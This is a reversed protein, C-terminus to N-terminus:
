NKEHILEELTEILSYQHRYNVLSLLRKLDPCRYQSFEQNLHYAQEYTEFEITSSSQAIQIILSALDIIKITELGGINIIEGVSKPSNILATIFGLFDNVHCFTRVQQGNGFVKLPQGKKAAEIFRPVVMGYQGGQRPGIVNFPRLISMKLGYKEHYTLGYAECVLKSIAYNNRTKLQINIIASMDELLKHHEHEGYVESTSLIFIRSHPAYELIKKLFNQTSNINIDLVKEPDNLVQFVGVIAAFHYILDIKPLITQYLSTDELNGFFFHFKKNQNLNKIYDSNEATCNDIGFVEDGKNLHFSALHSGLFGAVGTIFIQM